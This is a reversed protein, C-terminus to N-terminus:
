MLGIMVLTLVFLYKLPYVFLGASTSNDITVTINDLESLSNRFKDSSDEIETYKEESHDGVGGNECLSLSEFANELINKYTKDLRSINLSSSTNYFEDVFLPPVEKQLGLIVDFLSSEIQTYVNMVAGVDSMNNLEEFLGRVIIMSDQLSEGIPVSLNSISLNREGSTSNLINEIKLLSSKEFENSQEIITTNKLQNIKNKLLKSESNKVVNFINKLLADYLQKEGNAKLILDVLSNDLDKVFNNKYQITLKILNDILESFSESNTSFKQSDWQHKEFYNYVQTLMEFSASTITVADAFEENATANISHFLNLNTSVILSSIYNLEESFSTSNHSNQLMPSLEISPQEIEKFIELITDNLKHKAITQSSNNTINQGFPLEAHNITEFILSKKELITEFANNVLITTKQDVFIQLSNLSASIKDIVSPFIQYLVQNGAKNLADIFLGIINQSIDTIIISFSDIIPRKLEELCKFNNTKNSDRHDKNEVSTTSGNTKHMENTKNSDGLDKNEVIISSGNTKSNAKRVPIVMINSTKTFNDVSSNKPSPTTFPSTQNPLSIHSESPVTNQLITINNESESSIISANEDLSNVNEQIVPKSDNHSESSATNQLLTVNDTLSDGIKENLYELYDLFTEQEDRSDYDVKTVPESIETTSQSSKTNLFPIPPNTKPDTDITVTINLADNSNGTSQDKSNPTTPLASTNNENTNSIPINASHITQTVLTELPSVETPPVDTLPDNILPRDTSPNDTPSDYELSPTTSLLYTNNELLNITSTANLGNPPENPITYQHSITDNTLTPRPIENPSSGYTQTVLESNGITSQGLKTNLFPLPPNTKHDSDIAASINSPNNSNEASPDISNPTTPLASSNNENPNAISINTPHITQTKLTEPQSVETSPDETSPNHTSPNDIPPGADLRDEIPLDYKPSLTTPLPTTNNDMANVTSINAAVLTDPSPIETPTDETSPSDTSPDATSSDHEPSPTSSPPYTNTELPNITSTAILGSPPENSHTNQISTSDNSPTSKPSSVIENAPNNNVPLLNGNDQTSILDEALSDYKPSSTTSLSTTNSDMLNATSINAAVLTDPSPVETPTDETSPDSTSSDYESSPTSSPPYTNTELPNITSAANLGNPSVNTYTHQISTSDNSPTSRPISVFENAPNNDVQSFNAIGQSSPAIQLITIVDLSTVESHHDTPPTSLYESANKLVNEYVENLGAVDLSSSKNQFRLKILPVSENPFLLMKLSQEVQTYATKVFENNENESENELRKFLVQVINVSDHLSENISYSLDSLLNTENGNLTSILIERIKLVSSKEFHNPEEVDIVRKLVNIKTEITSRQLDKLTNSISQWLKGYPPTWDKPKALLYYVALFDIGEVMKHQFEVTFNLLDSILENSSLLETNNLKKNDLYKDVIKLMELTANNRLQSRDAIVNDVTKHMDPFSDYITSKTQASIHNFGETVFTSNGLEQKETVLENLPQEIKDFIESITDNLKYNVINEGSSLKAQNIIKFISSKKDLIDAIADNVLATINKDVDKQVNNLSLKIQDLTSPLSKYLEERSVEDVSDIYLYMVKKEIDTIIKSFSDVLFTRLASSNQVDTTTNREPDQTHQLYETPNTSNEQANDIETSVIISSNDLSNEGPFSNKRDDTTTDNQFQLDNPIERTFRVLENQNSVPGNRLIQISHINGLLCTVAFLVCYSTPSVRHFTDM